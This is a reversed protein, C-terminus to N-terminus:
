VVVGDEGAEPFLQTLAANCCRMAPECFLLTRIQAPHKLCDEEATAV